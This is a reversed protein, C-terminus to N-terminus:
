KGSKSTTRAFMGREVKRFRSADGKKNIERLMSSYLTAHPTKGYTQWGAKIVREAIAKANLPENAQALVAAAL